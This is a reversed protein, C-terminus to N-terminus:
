KWLNNFFKSIKGKLIGDLVEISGCIAVIVLMAAVAIFFNIIASEISM